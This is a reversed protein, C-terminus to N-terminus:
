LKMRIDHLKLWILLLWVEKRGISSVVGKWTLRQNGLTCCSLLKVGFWNSDAIHIDIDIWEM